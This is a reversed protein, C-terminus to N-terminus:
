REVWEGRDNRNTQQQRSFNDMPSKGKYGKDFRRGVMHVYKMATKINSWGYQQKLTFNDMGNEVAMTASTHRLVHPSVEDRDVGARDAIRKLLRLINRPKLKKGYRGIFITQVHVEASLPGGRVKLWKRLLRKTTKGFRVRRDKAGKGNVKLNRGEMDLDKIKANVFEKRRLGMDLLVMMMTFNRLGAWENIRQREVELMKDVQEQSIIRPYKDPTDPESINEMPSANLNGEDVQWNFFANLVRYHIAVTSAALGRDKLHKLYGRINNKTVEGIEPNKGLYEGLSSLVYEYQDLTKEARGELTKASVFDDIAASLKNM